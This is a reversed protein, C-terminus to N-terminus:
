VRCTLAGTAFENEMLTEGADPLERAPLEVEVVRDVATVPPVAWDMENLADPAGRPTDTTKEVLGKLAPADSFTVKLTARFVGEPVATM